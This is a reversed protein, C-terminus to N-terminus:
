QPAGRRRQKVQSLKLELTDKTTEIYKLNELHINLLKVILEVSAEEGHGGKSGISKVASKNFVDSVSNIDGILTELNDGLSELREDLLEANQYAQERLRDTTNSSTSSGSGGSAVLAGAAENNNLEINRLLLDAQQEYNDLVKDLEDQQSEVFFLQQDIKQQLTEVESSDQHLKAIDDASKALELDWENVKETYTEFISSTQTLKKSWKTVLDDM